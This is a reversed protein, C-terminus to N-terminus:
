QKLAEVEKKSLFRWEGVPLDGLWLQKIRVRRLQKVPTGVKQCIRRIHRNKGETLVIRMKRPSLLEVRTPKTAEGWLKVGRELKEVVGPTLIGDVTVEYEKECEQSPHTLLYTLTGDNTLILLGTTDKDLRGVPFIREEIPILDVVVNPEAATPKVSAVYGLPKNLMIYIQKEQEQIVREDVTVQDSEDDIKMGLEGVRKGNVLVLGQEILRDAERRSCVGRDALYKNLRILM